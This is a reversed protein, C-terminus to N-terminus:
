KQGYSSFLATMKAMEAHDLINPQGVCKSRWYLEACFETECATAYATDLDPGAAVLGHNALLAANRDTMAELANEALATSGFTAYRSCRVSEGAPTLMYHIAPLDWGLCSLVTSFTSHTHVVAGIDDRHQYLILHLALESSPKRTGDHVQGDFDVVVIDAPKTARYDLGSPSIALLGLRRNRISLNGSTGRTMREEVLKRGFRCILRREHDLLLAM